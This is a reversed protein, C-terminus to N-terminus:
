TKPRTDRQPRTRKSDAPLAQEITRLLSCPDFGIVSALLCLEVIDLRRQGTEIDSILSQRVDLAAALDEQKLGAKRREAIMSDRLAAYAERYRAKFM